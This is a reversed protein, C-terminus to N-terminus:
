FSISLSFENKPDTLSQKLWPSFTRVQVASEDPCFEVLRLYGAGAFDLTQFNVFM